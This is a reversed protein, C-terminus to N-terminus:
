SSIVKKLYKGLIDWIKFSVSRYFHKKSSAPTFNFQSMVSKLSTYNNLCGNKKKQKRRSKRGKEWRWDQNKRKQRRKTASLIHHNRTFNLLIAVGLHCSYSTYKPFYFVYMNKSSKLNIHKKSITIVFFSFVKLYNSKWEIGVIHWSLIHYCLLPLKQCYLNINKLM